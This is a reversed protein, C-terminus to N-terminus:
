VGKYGFVQRAFDTALDCCHDAEAPSLEELVVRTAFLDFMDVFRRPADGAKELRAVIREIRRAVKDRDTTWVGGVALDAVEERLAAITSGFPEAAAQLRRLPWGRESAYQQLEEVSLGTAAALDQVTEGRWCFRHEAGRLLQQREQTM